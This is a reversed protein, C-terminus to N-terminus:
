AEDSYHYYYLRHARDEEPVADRFSAAWTEIADRDLGLQAELVAIDGDTFYCAPVRPYLTNRLANICDSDITTSLSM